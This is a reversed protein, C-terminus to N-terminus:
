PQRSRGAFVPLLAGVAGGVANFRIQIVVLAALQKTKMVKEMRALAISATM